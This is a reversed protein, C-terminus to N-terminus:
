VESHPHLPIYVLLCSGGELGPLRLVSVCPEKLEAFVSPAAAVHLLAGDRAGGPVCLRILRESGM